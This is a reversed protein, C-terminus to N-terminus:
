YKPDNLVSLFRTGNKKDMAVGMKPWAWKEAKRALHFKKFPCKLGFITMNPTLIPTKPCSFDFPSTIKIIQDLGLCTAMM